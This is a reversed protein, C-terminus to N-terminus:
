DGSADPVCEPCLERLLADNDLSNIEENIIGRDQLREIAVEMARTQEYSRGASHGMTYAMLSAAAAGILLTAVIQFQTFM